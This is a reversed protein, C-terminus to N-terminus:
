SSRRRRFLMAALLLTALALVGGSLLDSPSAVECRCCGGSERDTPKTGGGAGPEPGPGKGGPESWGPDPEIPKDSESARAQVRMNARSAGGAEVRLRYWRGGPELPQAGDLVSAWGVLDGDHRAYIGFAPQPELVRFTDEAREVDDGSDRVVFVTTQPMVAELVESGFRAVQDLIKGSALAEELAALLARTGAPMQERAGDRLRELQAAARRDGQEAREALPRTVSDPPSYRRGIEAALKKMRAEVEARPNTPEAYTVPMHRTALYLFYDIEKEGDRPSVGQAGITAAREFESLNVFNTNRYVSDRLIEVGGATARMETLICQHHHHAPPDDCTDGSAGINYDCRQQGTLTWPGQVFAGAAGLPVWEEGGPFKTHVSVWAAGDQPVSGWDAIRFRAEIEEPITGGDSHTPTAVFFNEVESAGDKGVIRNTLAGDSAGHAVGVAAKDIQIGQRCGADSTGMRVRGWEALAPQNLLSLANINANAADAPYKALPFVYNDSGDTLRLNLQYWFQFSGDSPSLGLDALPVKLYISFGRPNTWVRGFEHPWTTSETEGGAEDTFSPSSGVDATYVRYSFNLNDHCHAPPSEGRFCPIPVGIRDLVSDSIFFLFV